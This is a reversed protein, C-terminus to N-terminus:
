SGADPKLKAYLEPLLLWTREIKDPKIICKIEVLRDLHKLQSKLSIYEPFTVDSSVLSLLQKDPLKGGADEVHKLMKQMIGALENRGVGTFLEVMAPEISDLTAIATAVHVHTITKQPPSENAAFLMALKIVQINKSSYFQKLLESSTKFNTPNEYWKTYFAWADPTWNFRGVLEAVQHLHAVCTEKAAHHSADLSQDAKHKREHPYHVCIFRRAFGGSLVKTKLNDRFWDGTECALVNVVPFPIPELGRKVTVADYFPVGYIDTLFDIMATPNIRLWNKFENIFFTLSRMYATEGTETTYSLETESKSLMTVVTELSQSSAGLPWKPFATVFLDKARDKAFSKGSGPSGILGLYLSPTIVEYSRETRSITTYIRRQLSASLLFLGCWTTFFEPAESASNYHIYNQIFTM